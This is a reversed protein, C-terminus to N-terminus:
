PFQKYTLSFDQKNLHLELPYNPHPYLVYPPLSVSLLLFPNSLIRGLLPCETLPVHFCLGSLWPLQFPAGSARLHSRFCGELHSVSQAPFPALGSYLFGPCRPELGPDQWIKKTLKLRMTQMKLMLPSLITEFILQLFCWMEWVRCNVAQSANQSGCM